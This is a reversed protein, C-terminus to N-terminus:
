TTTLLNNPRPTRVRPGLGADRFGEKTVWRRVVLAAVAPSFALPLQTLPNSMSLALMFHGVLIASWALGFSMLLFTLVGKQNLRM